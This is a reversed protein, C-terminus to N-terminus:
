YDVGEKIRKGIDSVIDDAGYLHLLDYCESLYKFIHYQEFRSVAEKLPIRKRKSYKYLCDAQMYTIELAREEPMYREGGNEGSLFCGRM